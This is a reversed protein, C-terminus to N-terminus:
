STVPPRFSAPDVAIWTSEARGLMEGDAAHLVSAARHRRGDGGRKWATVVLEEGPSPVRWVRATMTGLVMPRGAVGAAWGGPCDLAAWSVARSVDETVTWTTAYRGSGDALPGPRLHLGDGQPRATGCAFCLPFPHDAAGEYREEAARAEDPTAPAPVPEDLEAVPSGTAVLVDGDLLRLVPTGSLVEPDDAVVAMPRDLPPPSSLRVSVAPADIANRVHSALAGGVWGGNASDPPGCYHRPVTLEM